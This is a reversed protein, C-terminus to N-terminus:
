AIKRHRRRLVILAMFEFYGTDLFRMEYIDKRYLLLECM